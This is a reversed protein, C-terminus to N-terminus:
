VALGGEIECALRNGQERLASIFRDLGALDDFALLVQTEPVLASAETVFRVFVGRGSPNLGVEYHRASLPVVTIGPAPPRDDFPQPTPEDASGLLGLTRVPTYRAHNEQVDVGALSVYIMTSEIKQHGMIDKLHSVSGGKRIYWTAFTHRLCHPGSKRTAIGAREFLRRYIEQIGNRTLPGRQGMWVTGNKAQARIREAVEPTIPLRREGVKGRVIIAYDDLDDLTLNSIEKLRIGTDVAVLVLLEDRETMAAALLLDIEARTLVRRVTRPKPPPSLLHCPNKFGRIREAWGLFKRICTWLDYRSEPQLGPAILADAVEMPQAPLTACTKALRRVAWEDQELTAHALYRRMQLFEAMAELTDMSGNMVVKAPHNLYNHNAVQSPNDQPHSDM